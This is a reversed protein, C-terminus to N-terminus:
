YVELLCTAAQSHGQASGEGSVSTKYFNWNHLNCTTHGVQDGTDRKWGFTATARLWAPRLTSSRCESAGRLVCGPMTTIANSWPTETTSSEWGSVVFCLCM